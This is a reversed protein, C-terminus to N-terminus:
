FKELSARAKFHGVWIRAVITDRCLSDGYTANNNMTVGKGVHMARRWVSMRDYSFNPHTVLSSHESCPCCSSASHVVVDGLNRTAKGDDTRGNGRSDLM